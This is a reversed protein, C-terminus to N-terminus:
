KKVNKKAGPKKSATKKVTPKKPKITSTSKKPKTKKLLEQKEFFESKELEAELEAITPLTGKLDKPLKNLIETQYEAVGIPKNIDRLAYEATFNNKTKCLLLGVTPNDQKDRILDDVASLYFNLQGIDRPDFKRSKLEVVVYCKLKTHYFLLDIYYDEDGVELHHQRGVLAFGKGMELLLKQVHDILGQELDREIHDDELTLFDFIYPDKFTGQATAASDDTILRSFNTIAKGERSFLNKKIEVELTSRSWRNTLSKQAYWLCEDINKISQLIVVNHFWPISFVPLQELERAAARSNHYLQYFAKMRYINATSFGKNGPYLRQLDKSLTELFSSGWAHKEEQETIIKGIIWNRRNLIINISALAENHSQEIHTKIDLLVQLYKKTDLSQNTKPTIKKM